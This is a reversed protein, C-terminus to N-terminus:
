ADLDPEVRGSRVQVEPVDHQQAFQLMELVEPVPRRGSRSKVPQDAVGGAPSVRGGSLRFLDGGVGLGVLVLNELDKVRFFCDDIEVRAPESRQSRELDNLQDRSVGYRPNQLAVIEGFAILVTLGDRDMFQEVGQHLSVIRHGQTGVDLQAPRILFEIQQDPAVRCPYWPCSGCTYRVM